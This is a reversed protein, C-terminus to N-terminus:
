YTLANRKMNEKNNQTNTYKKINKKKYVKLDNEQSAYNLISCSFGLIQLVLIKVIYKQKSGRYWYFHQNDM